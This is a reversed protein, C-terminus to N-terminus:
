KKEMAQNAGQEGHGTPRRHAGATAHFYLPCTKRRGEDHYHYIM